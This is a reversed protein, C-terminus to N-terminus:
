GGIPRDHRRAPVPPVNLLRVTLARERQGREHDRGALADALDSLRNFDPRPPEFLVFMAVTLAQSAVLSALLLLLTAWFIPIGSPTLRPRIGETM